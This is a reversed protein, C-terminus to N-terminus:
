DDLSPAPLAAGSFVHGALHTDALRLNRDAELRRQLLAAQPPNRTPVFFWFRADKEPSARMASLLCQHLTSANNQWVPRGRARCTRERGKSPVHPLQWAEAFHRELALRYRAEGLGIVLKDMRQMDLSFLRYTERIESFRFPWHAGGEDNRRLRDPTFVDTPPYLVNVALLSYLPVFLIARHAGRLPAALSSVGYATSVLISPVLHLAWRNAVLPYEGAASLVVSIAIPLLSISILDWRRNRWEAYLGVFFLTGILFGFPAAPQFFLQEQIGYLTTGLQGWSSILGRAMQPHVRPVNALSDGILGYRLPVYFLACSSTAIAGQRLAACLFARSRFGQRVRKSLDVLGITAVVIVAAYHTFVSSLASLFYVWRWKRQESFFSATTISLLLLLLAYHRITQSQLVIQTGFAAIIALFLGGTRGAGTRVGLLYFTFVLLTGPLLSVMRIAVPDAAGALLFAKTFIYFLPPHADSLLVTRLIGGHRHSFLSIYLHKADDASFHWDSLGHVRLAFGVCALATLGAVVSLEGLRAHGRLRDFVRDHLSQSM